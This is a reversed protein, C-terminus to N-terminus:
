FERKQLVFVKMPKFANKEEHEHMIQELDEITIYKRNKETDEKNKDKLLYIKCKDADNCIRKVLDKPSAYYNQFTSDEDSSIYFNVDLRERSYYFQYPEDGIIRENGNLVIIKELMLYINGNGDIAYPYPVDNNGV